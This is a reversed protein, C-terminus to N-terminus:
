PSQQRHNRLVPLPGCLVSLLSVIHLGRTWFYLHTNSRCNPLLVDCRAAGYTTPCLMGTQDNCTNRETCLCAQRTQFERGCAVNSANVDPLSDCDPKPNLEWGICGKECLYNDNELCEYMSPSGESYAVGAFIVLTVGALAVCVAFIRWCVVHGCIVGPAAFVGQWLGKQQDTSRRRSRAANSQRNSQRQM